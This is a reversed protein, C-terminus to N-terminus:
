AAHPGAGKVGDGPPGCLGPGDRRPCRPLLPPCAQPLRLGLAPAGRCACSAAREVAASVLTRIKLPDRAQPPFVPSGPSSRCQGPLGRLTGTDSQRPRKSVDVGNEELKRKACDQCANGLLTTSDVRDADPSRQKCIQTALDQVYGPFYDFCHGYSVVKIGHLLMDAQHKFFHDESEKLVLMYHELEVKNPVSYLFLAQFIQDRLTEGCGVFLFSKTRYLNQLVEQSFFCPHRLLCGAGRPEPLHPAATHPKNEKRCRRRYAQVPWPAGGAGAPDLRKKEPAPNVPWVVPPGRCWASAERGAQAVVSPAPPFGPCGVMVEPDQTVDKYGSPDLVMGCPDTYLGHIHLVGYRIHGRAWQLVQLRSLRPTLLRSGSVAPMEPGHHGFLESLALAVDAGCSCGSSCRAEGGRGQTLLEAWPTPLPAPTQGAVQLEGWPAGFSLPGQLSQRSGSCLLGPLCGSDYHRRIKERVRPVCLIPFVFRSKKAAKDDAEGIVAALGRVSGTGAASPRLAPAGLQGPLLAAWAAAGAPRPAPGPARWGRLGRAPRVKTKDKLDLSEMPRHQQQGFLELLNDYNTTLVMTGREMLSLISQLVLPNQIHQELNDFVEMLCDQFFSPKTDGTRPSMKRILDHAVVLLDRDKTVKRRFEAVDGPHLVELQEAAEIVAEICSRWSCLAPIGPAVAASVGTGIVLLLEQPQKRVLSKLFKRSLLLPPLPLIFYPPCRLLPAPEAEGVDSRPRGGRGLASSSFNFVRSRSRAGAFAPAAAPSRHGSLGTARGSKETRGVSGGM